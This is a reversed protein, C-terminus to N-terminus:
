QVPKSAAAPAPMTDMPIRGIQEEIPRGFSEPHLYLGREADPKWEEVPIRNDNAYADQRIGTVQWSVDVYPKDTQIVFTNGVVEEAVIAQAFQGIVTLQYRFDRNLADFWEPLEVEAFGEGDTRVNGNYINMMDPSEVFSHYLYKNEPDLPHDIKFSGGGKSLNGTVQVKGAFYGAWENSSAIAGYVGYGFLSDALIGLAWGANETVYGRVGNDNSALYGWTNSLGVDNRGFVGYGDADTSFGYVGSKGPGDSEGIVGDGTDSAGWVGVGDTTNGFVGLGAPTFGYVGWGTGAQSGHVGIGLPGTGNNIGRVGSSSGGPSTSTVIGRLGTANGSTSNTEGWVGPFTGGTSAHVGYVGIGPSSGSIATQGDINVVDLSASPSTTGIGVDENQDVFIGRTQLAYPAARLAQRPSLTVGDVNIELWRDGNDFVNAGFDIEVTFLGDNMTVGNAFQTSGVQAGGVGSDFLKFSLDHSGAAPVGNDVLRGQYIFATDIAGLTAATLAAAGVAATLAHRLNM